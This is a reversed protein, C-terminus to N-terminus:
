FVFMRLLGLLLLHGPYVLYFWRARGLRGREGTNLYLLPLAALAFMELWGQLVLILAAAFGGWRWDNYRKILSFVVILAIGWFKYDTKLVWALLGAAAYISIRLVWEAAATFAARGAGSSVAGPRERAPDRLKRSVADAAWLAALGIAMTFLINQHGAYRITGRAAMNFPIESVFAFVILRLMYKRIDSTHHYGQVLMWFFLPAAIRGLARMAFYAASGRPIVVALAMATHDIVMSVAAIM